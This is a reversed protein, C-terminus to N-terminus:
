GVECDVPDVVFEFALEEGAFVNDDSQVVASHYGAHNAFLGLKRHYSSRIAGYLAVGKGPIEDAEVVSRAIFCEHVLLMNAAIALHVALKVQSRKKLIREVSFSVQMCGPKDLFRESVLIANGRGNRRMKKLVCVDQVVRYTVELTTNVVAPQEGMGDYWCSVFEPM